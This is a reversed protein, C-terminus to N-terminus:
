DLTLVEVLAAHTLLPALAKISFAEDLAAVTFKTLRRFAFKVEVAVIILVILLLSHEIVVILM